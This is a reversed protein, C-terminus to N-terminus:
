AHAYANSLWGNSKSPYINKEPSLVKVTEAMFRVGCMIIMDQPAKAAYKSLAFSDGVFDAVEGIDQSQYTHALICVRKEKKLRLIDDQM